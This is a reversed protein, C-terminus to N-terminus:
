ITFKSTSLTSYVSYLTYASNYGRYFMNYRLYRNNNIYIYMRDVSPHGNTTTPSPGRLLKASWKVGAATAPTSPAHTACCRVPPPSKLGCLQWRRRGSKATFRNPLRSGRPLDGGGGGGSWWMGRTIRAIIAIIIIIIMIYYTYMYIFYLKSERGSRHNLTAHSENRRCRSGAAVCM